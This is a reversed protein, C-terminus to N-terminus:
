PNRTGTLYTGSTFGGLRARKERVALLAQEESHGLTQAISLLVEMMDAIEDLEPKDLLEVHEETLKEFLERQLQEGNIRKVTALKGESAMVEPIRDRVLKQGSPRFDTDDQDRKARNCKFCLAQLNREDDVHMQVGHLVIQEKKDATNRPVIHDIDIPRLSSSIGCLQCKQRAAKLVRYRVSAGVKTNKGKQAKKEIWDRIKDECINKAQEVMAQDDLRFNLTFKEGRYDYQIINHKTLTIKPWRMVIREYYEQVAQDYGSLTKALEKKTALGNTELLHLLIAPQYLDTM